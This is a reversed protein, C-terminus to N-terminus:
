RHSRPGVGTACTAAAIDWWIQREQFSSHLSPERVAAKCVAQCMYMSKM